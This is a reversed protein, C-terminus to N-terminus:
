SVRTDRAAGATSGLVTVRVRSAVTYVAPSIGRMDFPMHMRRHRSGQYLDVAALRIRNVEPYSPSLSRDQNVTNRIFLVRMDNNLRLKQQSVLGVLLVCM